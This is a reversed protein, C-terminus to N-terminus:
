CVRKQQREIRKTRSMQKIKKEINKKKNKHIVFPFALFTLNVSLQASYRLFFTKNNELLYKKRVNGYFLVKPRKPAWKHIEM